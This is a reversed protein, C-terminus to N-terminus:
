TSNLGKIKTIWALLNTISTDQMMLLNTRAVDRITYYSDDLAGSRASNILQEAMEYAEIVTRFGYCAKGEMCIDTWKGGSAHVLPIVGLAVAEATAIGFHEDVKFSMFVRSSCIYKRITDWDANLVVREAGMTYLIPHMDKTASGMIVVRYKQALKPIVIDAGMLKSADFRDWVIVDFDRKSPPESCPEIEDVPIAPQAVIVNSIDWYKYVYKLTWSSNATFLKIRTNPPISYGPFHVYQIWLVDAEGHKFPNTSSCSAVGEDFNWLIDFPLEVTDPVYGNSTCATYETPILMDSARFPLNKDIFETDIRLGCSRVFGKRDVWTGCYGLRANIGRKRLAYAWYFAARSAGNIALNSGVHVLVDM